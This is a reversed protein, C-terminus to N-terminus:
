RGCFVRGSQYRDYDQGRRGEPQSCCYHTGNSQLFFGSINSSYASATQSQLSTNQHLLLFRVVRQFSEPDGGTLAPTEVSHEVHFSSPSHINWTFRQHPHRFRRPKLETGNCYRRSLPLAPAGPSIQCLCSSRPFVLHDLALSRVPHRSELPRCQRQEKDWESVM